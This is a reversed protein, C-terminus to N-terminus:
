RSPRRAAALIRARRGRQDLARRHGAHVNTEIAATARPARARTRYDRELINSIVLSDPPMLLVSGDKPAVNYIYNTAKIGGAGVMSQVIMTPKGPIQAPLHRALIQAYLGYTGGVDYGIVITIQKGKFVDDARVPGAVLTAAVIGLAAIPGLPLKRILVYGGQIVSAASRDHRDAILCLRFGRVIALPNPM